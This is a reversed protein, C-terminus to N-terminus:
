KIISATVLSHDVKDESHDHSADVEAVHMDEFPGSPLQCLDKLVKDQPLSWSPLLIKIWGKVGKWFLSQVRRFGDSTVFDEKVTASQRQEVSPLHLVDNEANVDLLHLINFIHERSHSSLPSEHIEESLSEVSIANTKTACIERPHPTLFDTSDRIYSPLSKAMPQLFIDVFQSTKETANACSSVIPRIGHPRKHIKKLFYLRGPRVKPPPSCYKYQEGTLRGTNHLRRLRLKVAQKIAQTLERGGRDLRQYVQPDALHERGNRIYDEVNKVIVSGKDAPKYRTRRYLEPVPQDRNRFMYKLRLKRIFDEVERRLTARKEIRPKPIFTLGKSLLRITEEGRSKKQPAATELQHQALSVGEAQASDWLEALKRLGLPTSNAEQLFKTSGGLHNEVDQNAKAANEKEFAIAM